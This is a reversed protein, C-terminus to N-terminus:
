PSHGDSGGSDSLGPPVLNCLPDSHHKCGCQSCVLIIERAYFKGVHLTTVKRPRRKQVKLEGGCVACQDLSPRFEILPPTSFLCMPSITDALKDLYRSLCQIWEFTTKKTVLGHHLFLNEIVEPEIPLNMGKLKNALDASSLQPHKIRAVLIAIAEFESPRRHPQRM